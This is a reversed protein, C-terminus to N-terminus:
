SVIIAVMRLSGSVLSVVGCPLDFVGQCVVLSEALM